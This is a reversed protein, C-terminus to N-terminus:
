IHNWISHETSLRDMITLDTDGIPADLSLDGFVTPHQRLVRRTFEKASDELVSEDLDGCLIAVLLDQCIDARRDPPLYRSVAANVKQVLLHEPTRAKGALFPYQLEPGVVRIRVPKIRAPPRYPIIDAEAFWRSIVAVSRGYHKIADAVSKNIAWEAFDVPLPIGLHAPPDIMGRHFPSYGKPGDGNPYVRFLTKRAGKGRLLVSLYGKKDLTDLCYTIGGVRLAANQSVDKFSVYAISDSDMASILYDLASRQKATLELRPPPLWSPLVVKSINRDARSAVKLLGAQTLKRVSYYVDHYGSGMAEALQKYTLGDEGRDFADRVHRVLDDAVELAFLKAPGNDSYPCSM